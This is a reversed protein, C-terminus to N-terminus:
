GAMVEEAEDGPEEVARERAASDLSRVYARDVVLLVGILLFASMAMFALTM